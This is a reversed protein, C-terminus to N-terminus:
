NAEKKAIENLARALASVPANLMGMLMAILTEKNPTKSLVEIQKADTIEGNVVGFKAEMLKIEKNQEFLIKAGTVEDPSFVVSTTGELLKADYGTVGLQELAKVILRNKYIKYEVNNERFSKRLKTDQAVTIGKFSVFIVSKAAKYKEIFEAVIEKKLTLNESM